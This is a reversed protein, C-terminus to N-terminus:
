KNIVEVRFRKDNIIENEVLEEITPYQYGFQGYIDIAEFEYAGIIDKSVKYEQGLLESNEDHTVKILTGEVFKANKIYEIYEELSQEKAKKAAFQIPFKNELIEDETMDEVVHLDFENLVFDEMLDEKILEEVTEYLAGGFPLQEDIKEFFYFDNENRLVFYDEAAGHPNEKVVFIDGVKWDKKFGKTIKTSM